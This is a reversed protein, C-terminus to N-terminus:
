AKDYSFSKAASDTHGNAVAVVKLTHQGAPVSAWETITSLNIETYDTGNKEIVANGIQVDSNGAVYYLKYGTAGEVNKIKLVGAETIEATEPTALQPATFTYDMPDLPADSAFQLNMTGTMSNGSIAVDKNQVTDGDLYVVTTIATAVNQQLATLTSSARTGITMKGAGDITVNYLYLPAKIYTKGEVVVAECGTLTVANGDEDAM